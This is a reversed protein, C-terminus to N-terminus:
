VSSTELTAKLWSPARSAEPLSSWVTFIQSAPVPWPVRGSLSCVSSNPPTAEFWALVHDPKVAQALVFYDHLLLGFQPCRGSVAAAMTTPVGSISPPAKTGCRTCHWLGHSGTTV